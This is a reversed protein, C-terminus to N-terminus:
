DEFCYLNLTTYQCPFPVAYSTWYAGLKWAFIEPQSDGLPSIQGVRGKGKYSMSIWKQCHDVSGWSPAGGPNVNTWAFHGRPLKVGTETIDIPVIPGHNFLDDLDKAIMKGDRLAYPYGKDALGDTFRTAPGVTDDALWAMFSGANDFGMANAALACHIDAGILGGIQGTFTAATVFALRAQFNCTAGCSVTGELPPMSPDCEEHEPQLKGDGCHATFRCDEDCSNYDSSNNDIGLDCNEKGSWVLGDGCFAAQCHQTCEGQDSNLAFGLDCLEGPDLVGNGCGAPPPPDDTTTGTTGTTIGTIGTTGTTGTTSSSSSLAGSDPDTTPPTADPAPDPQGQSPDEPGPQGADDNNHCAMATLSLGLTCPM